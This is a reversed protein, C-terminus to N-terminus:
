SFGLKGDRARPFLKQDRGASSGHRESAHLFFQPSTKGQGNDHMVQLHSRM